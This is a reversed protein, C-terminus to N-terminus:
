AALSEDDSAPPQLVPPQIHPRTRLHHLERLRLNPSPSPLLAQPTGKESSVPENKNLTPQLSKYIRTYYYYPIQNGVRPM